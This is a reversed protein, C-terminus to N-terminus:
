VITVSIYKVELLEQLLQTIEERVLIYASLLYDDATIRMTSTNRDHGSRRQMCSVRHQAILKALEGIFLPEKKLEMCIAMKALVRTDTDLVDTRNTVRLWELGLLTISYQQM